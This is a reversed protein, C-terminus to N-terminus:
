SQLSCLSQPPEWLPSRVMQRGTLRATRCHSDRAQYNVDWSAIEGEREEGVGEGQGMVPHTEKAIGTAEPGEPSPTPVSLARPILQELWQKHGSPSVSVGGSFANGRPCAVYLISIPSKGECEM